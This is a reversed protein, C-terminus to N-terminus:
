SASRFTLASRWYRSDYWFSIAWTSATALRSPASIWVRSISSLAGARTRRTSYAVAGAAFYDAPPGRCDPRGTLAPPRPRLALATAGGEAHLAPRGRRLGRG